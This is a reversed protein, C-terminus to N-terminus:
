HVIPSNTPSPIGALNYAWQIGYIASDVASHSQTTDLLHQLYLAVHKARTPFVQTEAKASASSKWRLFARRYTDITGNAKSAPVTSKLRSALERLSPDSLEAFSSWIGSSFVDSFFCSFLFPIFLLLTWIRAVGGPPAFLFKYIVGPPQCLLRLLFYM